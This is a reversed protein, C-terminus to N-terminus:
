IGPRLAAPDIMETAPFAKPIFQYRAAFDIVSQLMEPTIGSGTLFPM